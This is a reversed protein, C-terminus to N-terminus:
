VHFFDGPRDKKEEQLKVPRQLPYITIKKRQYFFFIFDSNEANAIWFSSRPGQM